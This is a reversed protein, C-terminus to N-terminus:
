LIDIMAILTVSSEAVEITEAFITTLTIGEVFSHLEDAGATEIRDVGGNRSSVIVKILAEEALIKTAIGFLKANRPRFKHVHAASIRAIATLAEAHAGKGAVGAALDVTNAKNVAVDALLHEASDPLTVEGFFVVHAVDGITDMERCPYGGFPARKILLVKILREQFVLRVSGNPFGDVTHGVLFDPIGVHAQLALENVEDALLEAGRPEAILSIGATNDAQHVFDIGVGQENAESTAKGSVLTSVQEKRVKITQSADDIVGVIGHLKDVGTLRMRVITCTLAKDLADNVDATTRLEKSLNDEKLVVVHVESTTKDAAHINPKVRGGTRLLGRAGAAFLRQHISNNVEGDLVAPPIFAITLSSTPSQGLTAGVGILVILVLKIGGGDVAHELIFDKGKVVSTARLAEALAPYLHHLVANGLYSRVVGHLTLEVIVVGTEIVRQCATEVVEAGGVAGFSALKSCPLFDDRLAPIADFDDAASLEILHFLADVVALTMGNLNHQILLPEVISHAHLKDGDSGIGIANLVNVLYLREVKDTALVVDVGEFGDVLHVIGAGELRGITEIRTM